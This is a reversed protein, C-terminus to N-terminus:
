RQACKRQVGTLRRNAPKLRKSPTQKAAKGRWADREREVRGAASVDELRSAVQLVDAAGRMWYAVLKRAPRGRGPAPAPAAEALQVALGHAALRVLAREACRVGMCAAAALGPVPQAASGLVAYVRRAAPGAHARAWLAAAANLAGSQLQGDPLLWCMNVSQGAPPISAAGRGRLQSRQASHATIRGAALEGLFGADLRYHMAQLQRDERRPRRVRLVGAAHLRQRAADVVRQGLQAHLAVDRRSAYFQLADVHWAQALMALLVRREAEGAESTSAAQEVTRWAAAIHQRTENAALHALVRGYTTRQYESRERESRLARYHAPQCQEFLEAIRAQPLGALICKAVIAAEAESTSAYKRIAERRQAQALQELLQWADVPVGRELLRVPPLLERVDQALADGPRRGDGAPLLWAVDRWRVVQLAPLTEPSGQLFEYSRGDFMSPTAAVYCRSARVEGAGLMPALLKVSMAPPLEGLRLHYHRGGSPTSEIPLLDLLGLGALQREVNAVTGAQKHEDADLVVHGGTGLALGVNVAQRADLAAWQKLEPVRRWAALPAKSGAQLPIPVAGAKRWRLAWADAEARTGM